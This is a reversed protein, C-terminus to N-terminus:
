WFIWVALFWVAGIIHLISFFKDVKWGLSGESLLYLALLPFSFAAVDSIIGMIALVAVVLIAAISFLSLISFIKELLTAERWKIKM